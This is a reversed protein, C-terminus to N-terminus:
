SWCDASRCSPRWSLQADFAPRIREHAVDEWPQDTFPEAGDVQRELLELLAAGNTSDVIREAGLRPVTM